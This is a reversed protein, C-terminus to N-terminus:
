TLLTWCEGRDGRIGRSWGLGVLCLCDRPKMETVVYVWIAGDDVSVEGSEGPYSLFIEFAEKIQQMKNMSLVGGCQQRRM